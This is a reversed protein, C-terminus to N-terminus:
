SVRTDFTATEIRNGRKFQFFLRYLGASPFGYPISIEPAIAETPASKQGDSPQVEVSRGPVGCSHSGKSDNGSSGISSEALPDAAALILSAMPVSGSPHIHAFVSLDSKMVEVHAAMGMYPALDAAPKGQSDEVEFRLSLPENTRPIVPDRRWIVRTGDDLVDLSSDPTAVAKAVADSDDGGLAAGSVTPLEIRGVLTWPFGSEDVVDAFVAYSGGQVSPLNQVFIGSGRDTPHLHWLRDLNPTRVLFLHMLHGHDPILHEMVKFKLWRGNADAARLELQNGRDLTASLLPPKFLANVRAYSQADSDWWSFAFYFIGAVAVTMILMARRGRMRSDEAIPAGAVLRAERAAAGVISIAGLGLAIALVLLTAGLLRPMPLMRQGASPVPVSVSGPGRTGDVNLLVRLSG